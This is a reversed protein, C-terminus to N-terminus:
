LVLQTKIKFFHVYVRLYVLTHTCMIKYKYVCEVYAVPCLWVGNIRQRQQELQKNYRNLKFICVCM